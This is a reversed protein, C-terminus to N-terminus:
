RGDATALLEIDDFYVDSVGGTTDSDGWLAIFLPRNPPDRRYLRRYDAVVDREIRVWEGIGDVASAVVIVRLAGYRVTTGVPLTSSYTYKISRPRGLWDKSDFTVYVAGGADNYKNKDERAGAPLREARWQWSLRPHTRLDWQYGDGNLRVVQVSEDRTYARVRKSGGQEVIEFYSDDRDLVRPLDLVSRSKKHPRKWHYPPVGAAYGEFDEVLISADAAQAGAEGPWAVAGLLLVSLGVVLWRENRM